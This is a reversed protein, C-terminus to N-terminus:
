QLLILKGTASQAGQRVRYFYVGSAAPMGRQDRGDWHMPDTPTSLTRVRRGRVDFIGVYVPMALPTSIDFHAIDSFPNPYASVTLRQVVPKSAGPEAIFWRRQVVQRGRRIEVALTDVSQACCRYSIQQKRLPIRQGNAYWTFNLPRDDLAHFSFFDDHAGHMFVVSDDPAFALQTHLPPYVTVRQGLTTHQSLHATLTSVGPTLARLDTGGSEVSIVSSDSSTWWGEGIIRVRHGTSWHAILSPTCVEGQIMHLYTDAISLRILLPREGGPSFPQAVGASTHVELGREEWVLSQRPPSPIDYAAQALTDNADPSLLFVADRLNDLGNGIRGGASFFGVGQPARDGFVAIRQGPEIRAHDPFIFSTKHADGLLMGGMEIAVSDANLIEVFEDAYTERRGNGNADGARGPPPDALVESIRLHPRPLVRLEFAQSALGGRGDAVEFSIPYRGPLTPARGSLLGSAYHLRFGTPARVLSFILTAGEPDTAQAPYAYSGNAYVSIPPTSTIRPQQNPPPLPAITQLLAQAVFGMDSWAEVRTQGIRRAHLMGRRDVAVISTDLSLWYVSTAEITDVGSHHLGRLYAAERQGLRLMPVALEFREYLPRQGGPSYRTRAPLRGHPIPRQKDFHLSHGDISSPFTYNLVTDGNAHILLITDGDNGLGNGIRGDDTFVGKQTEPSGGGFLVIYSGTAAITGTPFAFRRGASVDNDSLHWGSLDLDPGANFLEIFEDAYADFVGDSNADDLPNALVESLRIDTPTPHATPTSNTSGGAPLASKTDPSIADARPLSYPTGYLATHATFADGRNPRMASQQTPWNSGDVRDITDGNAHILLITDGGNSLGNGIRGDDVFAPAGLGTPRGGGFLLLHAGPPLITASPFAFRSEPPVDDDSLHWGALDVTDTGANHLEIFEDEYAHRQGDGNADDPPDALIQRIFPGIPAAAPSKDAPAPSRSLADGSPHVGPSFPKAFFSRHAAFIRNPGRAVSQDAPWNSGDVRDITDGNAHILFITDGGNSLGNGIRGDDVFAPASLGTPRGGGFLLLHAGPPLITASPFAFRSEPPVDDDSLHWGALDVTDTGANHLEIFEDEYAHRQGDGNADGLLGAPPDALIESIYVDDARIPTNLACLAALAFLYRNDHM